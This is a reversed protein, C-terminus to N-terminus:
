GVENSAVFLFEGTIYIKHFSLWKTTLDLEFHMGRSSRHVIRRVSPVLCTAFCLLGFIFYKNFSFQTNTAHKIRNKTKRM